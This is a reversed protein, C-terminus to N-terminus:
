SGLGFFFPATTTFLILLWAWFLLSGDNGAWLAAMKYFLPLERNTYNAVYAFNFDSRVLLTVLAMVALTSLAVVALLAREASTVLGPRKRRDGVIAAVVAYISLVFVAMLSFNGLHHM